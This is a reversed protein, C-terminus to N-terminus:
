QYSVYTRAVIRILKDIDERTVDKVRDGVNKYENANKKNNDLIEKIIEEDKRLLRNMAEDNQSLISGDALKISNIDIIDDRNGIKLAQERKALEIQLRKIKEGETESREMKSIADAEFVAYGTLGYIVLLFLTLFLDISSKNNENVSNNEDFISSVSFLFLSVIFFIIISVFFDKYKKVRERGSKNLKLKKTIADSNINFISVIILILSVILLIIPIGFLIYFPVKTDTNTLSIGIQGFTLCCMTVLFDYDNRIGKQIYQVISFILLVLLVLTVLPSLLFDKILKLVEIEKAFVEFSKFRLFYLEKDIASISSRYFDFIIKFGVFVTLVFLLIFILGEIKGENAYLFRFLGLYLIIILLYQIIDFEM